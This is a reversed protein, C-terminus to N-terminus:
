GCTVYLFITSGDKMSASLDISVSQPGDVGTSYAKGTQSNVVVVSGVACGTQDAITITHTGVEPAEIHAEHNVNLSADNYSWKTNSAGLTDTWTIELGDIQNGASDVFRTDIEPAVQGRIKFNDTKTHGHVFGFNGAGCQSQPITLACGYFGVPTIWAKYEGGPNPTDAYPMLQITIGSVGTSTSHVCSPDSLAVSTFAGGSVTVERCTIADTSLLHKGSPDTVMFFYNGDPLGAAGPKAHAGPGGNLYVDGKDAYINGNVENGLINTTFLAGPIPPTAAVVASGAGALSISLVTAMTAAVGFLRQVVRGRM